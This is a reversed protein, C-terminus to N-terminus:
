EALMFPHHLIRVSDSIVGVTIEPIRNKPLDLRDFLEVVSEGEITPSLSSYVWRAGLVEYESEEHGYRRMLDPIYSEYIDRKEGRVARDVDANM